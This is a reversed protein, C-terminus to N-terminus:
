TSTVPSLNPLQIRKGHTETNEHKAPYRSWLFCGMITLTLGIVFVLFSLRSPKDRGRIGMIIGKGLDRLTYAGLFDFFEWLTIENNNQGCIGLGLLGGFSLSGGFVMLFIALIEM